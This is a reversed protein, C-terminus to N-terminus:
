QLLRSLCICHHEEPQFISSKRYGSAPRELKLPVTPLSISRGFYPSSRSTSHLTTVLSPLCQTAIPEAAKWLDGSSTLTPHWRSRSPCIKAQHNCWPLRLKRSAMDSKQVKCPVTSSSQFVHMDKASEAAKPALRASHNKFTASFDGGSNLKVIAFCVLARVRIKRRRCTNCGKSKGPVGVM